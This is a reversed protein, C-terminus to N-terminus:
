HKGFYFQNFRKNANWNIKVGGEVRWRRGLEVRSKEGEEEQEEEQEETQRRDHRPQWRTRM